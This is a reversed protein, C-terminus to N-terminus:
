HNKKNLVFYVIGAILILAVLVLVFPMVNTKEKTTGLTTPEVTPESTTETTTEVKKTGIAFLSFGATKATYYQYGGQEKVYSTPLEEWNNNLHRFLAVQNKSMGHETLWTNSVTVTLEATKVNANGFNVKNVEFYKYVTVEPATVGATPAALSNVTIKANSVAMDPTFKVENVGIANNNVTYKVEQNPEQTNVAVSSSGGSGGSGGSSSSDVSSSTSTVEISLTKTASNGAKDDSYCTVTRTGTGEFTYSTSCSQANSCTKLAVSEGSISVRTTRPNVENSSCTLTSIQGNQLSNGGSSTATQLGPATADVYLTYNDKTFNLHHVRDYCSIAWTYGTNNDPIKIATINNVSGNGNVVGDYSNRGFETGDGTSNVTLNTRFGGQSSFDGVLSCNKLFNDTPIYSFNVTRSSVWTGNLPTTLNIRPPATDLTLRVVTSNIGVTTMYSASVNVTINIVINGPTETNRDLGLMTDNSANASKVVFWFSSLNTPIWHEGASSVSTGTANAPSCSYDAGGAVNLGLARSTFNTCVWRNFVGANITRNPVASGNTGGAILSGHSDNLTINGKVFSFNVSTVNFTSTSNWWITFNFTEVSNEGIVLDNDTTNVGIPTGPAGNPCTSAACSPANSDFFQSSVLSSGFILVFVFLLLISLTGKKILNRM